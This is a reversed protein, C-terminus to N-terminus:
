LSNELQLDDVSGVIKRLWIVNSDHMKEDRTEHAGRVLRYSRTECANGSVGFDRDLTQPRKDCGNPLQITCIFTDVLQYDIM